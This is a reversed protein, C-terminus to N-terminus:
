IFRYQKAATENLVLVGEATNAKLELLCESKSVWNTEGTTHSEIRYEYSTEEKLTVDLHILM